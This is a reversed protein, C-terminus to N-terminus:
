QCLPVGPFRAFPRVGNELKGNPPPLPQGEYVKGEAILDPGCLVQVIAIM